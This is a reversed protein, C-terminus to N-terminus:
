VNPYPLEPKPIKSTFSPNNKFIYERNLRIERLCAQIFPDRRAKDEGLLLARNLLFNPKPARNERILELLDDKTYNSSLISKASLTPKFSSQISSSNIPLANVIDNSAPVIKYNSKSYDPPTFSISKSKSHLNPSNPSALSISKSKSHSNPSSPMIAQNFSKRREESSEILRSVREVSGSNYNYASKYDSKSIQMSVPRLKNMIPTSNSQKLVVPQINSYIVGNRRNDNTSTPQVRQRISSTSSGGSLITTKRREDKKNPIKAETPVNMMSHRRNDDIKNINVSKIAKVTSSSKLSPKSPSKASTPSKTPTSLKASNSTTALSTIPIPSVVNNTMQNLNTVISMSKAKMHNSRKEGDVNNRNTVPIEKMAKLRDEEDLMKPVVIAIEEPPMGKAECEALAKTYRIFYAQIDDPMKFDNGRVPKDDSVNTTKNKDNSLISDNKESLISVPKNKNKNFDFEEKDKETVGFLAYDDMRGLNFHSFMSNDDPDFMNSGQSFVPELHEKYKFSTFYRRRRALNQMTAEEHKKIEASNFSEPESDHDNTDNSAILGPGSSEFKFIKMLGEDSCENKTLFEDDPADLMEDMSERFKEISTLEDNDCRMYISKPARSARFQFERTSMYKNIM